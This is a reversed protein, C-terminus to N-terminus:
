RKDVYGLQDFYWDITHWEYGGADHYGDGCDSDCDIM